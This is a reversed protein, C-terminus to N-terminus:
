FHIENEVANANCMKCIRENIPTKPKSYRGTEIGIPLSCSCVKFLIRRHDRPLPLECYMRKSLDHKYTKYTRLKESKMLDSHWKQIDKDRLTM